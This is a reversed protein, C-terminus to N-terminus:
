AVDFPLDGARVRRWLAAVQPSVGGPPDRDEPDAGGFYPRDLAPPVPYERNGRRWSECDRCFGVPSGNPRDHFESRPLTRHCRGCDVGSLETAAQCAACYKRGPAAPDVQCIPCPLSPM